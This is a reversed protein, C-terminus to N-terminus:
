SLSGRYRRFRFAALAVSAATLAGLWGFQGALSARWGTLVLTRSADIMLTLPNAIAILRLWVPMTAAPVLATSAFLLPLTIFGSVALFTNHGRLSLALAILLTTLMTTLLVVLAAIGLLGTAGSALRVGLLVAVVVAVASQLLAMGAQFLIRSVLMSSRAIPLSLLKALYGTERDWILPLVGSIAVGLVVFVLLGPLMFAPYNHTGTKGPDVTRGLATGLLVLWAAPQVVTLLLNLRERIAERWSRILFARTERVADASRNARARDPAPVPPEVLTGPEDPRTHQLFVEDLSARQHHLASVSIQGHAAAQVLQPIERPADTVWVSLEAPGTVASDGALGHQRLLRLLGDPEATILTVLESAIAAKLEGPPGALVQRGKTLVCVTDCLYEAEDMYNTALLIAVGQDRLRHLYSWIRRRSTVDLALTPEDLILLRPSNLLGCALDLRKTMGGSYTSVRRHAADTLDVLRLARDIYDDRMSTPVHNLAAEFELAERGTLM